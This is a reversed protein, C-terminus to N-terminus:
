WWARPWATSPMSTFGNCFTGIFIVYGEDGPVALVKRVPQGFFTGDNRIVKCIRVKDGLEFRPPQDRELADSM